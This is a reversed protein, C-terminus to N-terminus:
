AESTPVANWTRAWVSPPWASSSNEALPSVSQVSACTSRDRKALWAMRRSRTALPGSPRAPQPSGAIMTGGASESLGAIFVASGPRGFFTMTMRMSVTRASTNPGMRGSLVTSVGTYSAKASLLATNAWAYLLSFQVLGDTAVMRVPRYGLVWSVLFSSLATGFSTSITGCRSCFCPKAVAPKTAL